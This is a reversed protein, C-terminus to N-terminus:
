TQFSCAYTKKKIKSSLISECRLSQLGRRVERNKVVNVSIPFRHSNNDTSLFLIFIVVLRGLNVM